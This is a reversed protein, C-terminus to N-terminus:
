RSWPETVRALFYVAGSARHRVLLLFPRNVEVTVPEGAPASVLRMMAATAAAGELGNEDLRLVSQHLVDSVLLRPDDSLEGFDATPTFMTRVGLSNLTDKLPCRVDLSLRPMTLRVMAERRANLLADVTAADLEPEAEVLPRDPLLVSANVGGVAPLDVLQWGAHRAYGLREAQRMMPVRVVGTPTHFDDEVTDTDRFPNTWAVKLYLASVLGAVTDGGITGPLLLEPILDRTTRAVDANITTRAAEPDEVFPATAVAGSPWEAVVDTFGPKVELRRWVWLTNSVALTPEDQGRAPADLVAAARLLDAQESVREPAGALLAAPQSATEGRAARTVLGLAGAVSYPSFCANGNPSGSARHVALAFNLHAQVADREPM